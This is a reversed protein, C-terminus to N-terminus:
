AIPPRVPLPSKFEVWMSDTLAEVHHTVGRPHLVSDGPELVAEVGDVAGRLRGSLVYGISDHDHAHPPSSVGAPYHILYALGSAATELLRFRGEGGQLPLGEVTVLPQWVQEEMGDMM